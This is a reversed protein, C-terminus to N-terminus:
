SDRGCPTGGDGTSPRWATWFGPYSLNSINRVGNVILPISMSPPLTGFSSHLMVVFQILTPSTYRTGRVRLAFTSDLKTLFNCWAQGWNKCVEGASRLDNKADSETEASMRASQRPEIKVSLM